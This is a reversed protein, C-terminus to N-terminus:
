LQLLTSDQCGLGAWQLLLLVFRLAERSIFIIRFFALLCYKIESNMAACDSKCSLLRIDSAMVEGQMMSWGDLDVKGNIPQGVSRFPSGNEYRDLDPLSTVRRIEALFWDFSFTLYLSLFHLVKVDTLM